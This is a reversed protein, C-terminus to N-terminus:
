KVKRKAKKRHKVRPPPVRYKEKIESIRKELDVKLKDGIFTGTFADVKAAISIKGALARAIKGRQWRPAQHVAPHQFIVGHKPPKARSRLARFLAKEAGLVQITSSPLTALEKLGGALSILRAGLTSGVLAKINAAVESMLEDVKSAMQRRVNAMELYFGSLTQLTRLDREDMPAGMSRKSANEAAEAKSKPLGLERLKEAEFNERDGLNVILRAYTEHSDILKNLEPFHLGFWERIRGALVNLMKDLEDVTSGAQIIIKDRRAAAERVKIRSIRMTIERLLRYFDEPKEVYGAEVAFKPLNSRLNEGAKSPTEVKVKLGFKDKVTKALRKNEFILFSYDEDKLQKILKEAEGVLEGREIKLALTSAEEPNRPFLAKGILNGKENFALLGFVSEVIYAKAL